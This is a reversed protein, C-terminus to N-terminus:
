EAAKKKKKTHYAEIASLLNLKAAYAALAYHNVNNDYDCEAVDLLWPFADIIKRLAKAEPEKFAELGQQLELIRRETVSFNVDSM